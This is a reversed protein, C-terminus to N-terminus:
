KPRAKELVDDLGCTCPDISCDPHLARQYIGPISECGPRHAQKEIWALMDPYTNWRKVLETANAKHTKNGLDKQTHTVAVCDQGNVTHITTGHAKLPGPTHKTM